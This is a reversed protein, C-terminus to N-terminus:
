EYSVPTSVILIESLGLQEIYIYIASGNNLRDSVYTKSASILEMQRPCSFEINFGSSNSTFANKLLSQDVFKIIVM